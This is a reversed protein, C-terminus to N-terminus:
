KGNTFEIGSELAEIPISEHTRPGYCFAIPTLTGAKVTQPAMVTSVPHAVVWSFV